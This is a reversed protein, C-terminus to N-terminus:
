PQALDVMNASVQAGSSSPEGGRGGRAKIIPTNPECVDWRQCCPFHKLLGFSDAWRSCSVGYSSMSRSARSAEFDALVAAFADDKRVQLLCLVWPAAAQATCPACPVGRSARGRMRTRTNAGHRVWHAVFADAGMFETRGGNYVDKRGLLLDLNVLSLRPHAAMYRGVYLDEYHCRQRPDPQVRPALFAQVDASLIELPGEVYPYPGELAACAAARRGHTRQRVAGNGGPSFCGGELTSSNLSSYRVIGGYVPGPPLTALLALLPPLDIVADDDTKGYWKSPWRSAARWWGMTKHSCHAERYVHVGRYVREALVKQQAYLVDGGVHLGISRERAQWAADHEKEAAIVFVPQMVDAHLAYLRRLRARWRHQRESCVIGIALTLMKGAARGGSNGSGRTLTANIGIAHWYASPAPAAPAAAAIVRSWLLHIATGVLLGVICSAASTIRRRRAQLDKM